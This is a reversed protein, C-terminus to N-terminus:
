NWIVLQSDAGCTSIAKCGLTDGVYIAVGTITNQHVTALTTDSQNSCAPRDLSQFKRMASLSDTEKKQAVDLKTVFTLKGTDDVSYLMPCCEHGVAVLSNLSVRTVSTFPLYETKLQTKAM